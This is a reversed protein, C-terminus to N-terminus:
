LTVQFKWNLRGGLLSILVPLLHQLTTIISTVLVRYRRVVRYTSLLRLTSPMNHMYSREWDKIWGSIISSNSQVHWSRESLHSYPGECVRPSWKSLISSLYTFTIVVDQPIFPLTLQPDVVVPLLGQDMRLKAMSFITLPCEVKISTSNFKFPLYLIQALASPWLKTQCLSRKCACASDHCMRVRGMGIFQINEQCSTGM